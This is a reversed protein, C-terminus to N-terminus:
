IAQYTNQMQEKTRTNRRVRHHTGCDGCQIVPFVSLSTTDITETIKMNTSGCRSCRGEAGEYYLAANPHRKMYPRLTLYLDELCQIDGINYAQMEDFASRDGELCRRWLPFGDNDLKRTLNFYVCLAELSYSPVRIIKKAARLTDIFKVPHFPPLGHKIFRATIWPIDFKDGNHAVIFDAEQLLVHLDKILESDDRIDKSFVNYDTLKKSFIEGTDLFKVAYTLVYPHEIVQGQSIFQKFRGWTYSIEPTTEIDLIAIRPGKREKTQPSQENLRNRNLVNNVTSKTVRNNLARAIKRSSVGQKSLSLILEQEQQTLKVSLKSKM